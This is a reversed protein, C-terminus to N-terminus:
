AAIRKEATELLTAVDNALVTKLESAAHPQSGLIHISSKKPLDEKQSLDNRQRIKALHEEMGTIAERSGVIDMWWTELSLDKPLGWLVPEAMLWAFRVYAPFRKLRGFQEPTFKGFLLKGYFEGYFEFDDRIGYANEQMLKELAKGEDVAFGRVFKPFEKEAFGPTSYTVLIRAKDKAQQAIKAALVGGMSVGFIDFQNAGLEELEQQLVRWQSAAIQTFDTQLIWKLSPISTKGTAVTDIAIIPRQIKSCLAKLLARGSRSESGVSWPFQVVLPVGEKDTNLRYIAYDIGVEKDFKFHPNEAERRFQDQEGVPLLEEKYATERESEAQRSDIVSQILKDYQDKTLQERLQEELKYITKFTEDPIVAKLSNEWEPDPKGLEEWQPIRESAVIDQRTPLESSPEAM